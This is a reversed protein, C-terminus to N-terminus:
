PRGRQSPARCSRGVARELRAHARQLDALLDRERVRAEIVRRTNELVFLYSTDGLQFSREAEAVNTELPGAITDRWATLAHQAQEVQASAERLELGVQQQLAAYTASARQLQAAARARTGQNHNLVPLGLEIGPGVEFGERGQGNADLVATLALIRSREWGLRAAAAHVGIEAARVDPRAILAERLLEATSGCAAPTEAPPALALAPADAPRGLLLSLRERAIVVDYAARQIEQASRAADVRATRAELEGIDGAALRSQMLTDIRALLAGAEKALQERDLALSLDAYGIRVSVVLDLGTHVLRQAASDLALRAAAVRRPREWLVEVPWKLTAEFQKPGLPFLLSLIPNTLVGAELLDARAFGLDSVSVQFMANNWLAVAVAEDPTLGDDLRVGTPLDTSVVGDVHAEAGTRERLGVAPSQPDFPAASACGSAVVLALAM